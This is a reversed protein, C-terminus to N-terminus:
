CVSVPKKKPLRQVERSPALAKKFAGPYAPRLGLFTKAAALSRWVEEPPIPALQWVAHVGICWYSTQGILREM